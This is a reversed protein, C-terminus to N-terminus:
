AAQRFETSREPRSTRDAALPTFVRGSRVVERIQSRDIGIDRLLRDSLAELERVAKKQRRFVKIQNLVRALFGGQVVNLKENLTVTNNM